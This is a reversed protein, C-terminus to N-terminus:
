HHYAYASPHVSQHAYASPVSYAAPHASYSVTKIPSAAYHVPSAAYQIPSAAYHVPSAEYHVPSAAYQLPAAYHVPSAAYQLPAAQTYITKQVPIVAPVQEIYQKAVPTNVVSKQVGHAYIPEVINTASHVVSSSHHSVGSPVNLVQSGVHQITPTEVVSYHPEVVTKVQAVSLPTHLVGGFAVSVLCSLVVFKFM